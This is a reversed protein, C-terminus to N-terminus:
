MLEFFVFIKKTIHVVAPELPAGPTNPTVFLVHRSIPSARHPPASKRVCYQAAVVCKPVFPFWGTPRWEVIARKKAGPGGWGAGRRSHIHLVATCAQKAHSFCLKTQEYCNNETSLMIKSLFIISINSFGFFRTEQLSLSFMKFFM